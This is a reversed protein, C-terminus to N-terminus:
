FGDAIHYNNLAKGDIDYPQFSPYTSGSTGTSKVYCSFEYRHSNYIKIKEITRQNYFSQKISTNETPTDTSVKNSDSWNLIGLDGFGNTILNIGSKISGDLKYHLILSKYIEKIEKLSLCHDYLRFDNFNLGSLNGTTTTNGDNTSRGCINMNLRGTPMATSVTGTKKLEGNIYLSGINGNYTAAIHYWTNLNFTYNVSFSSSPGNIGLNLSTGNIISFYIQCDTSTKINKCFLINNASGFASTAKIWMAVSWQNGLIEENLSWAVRGTACSGIKGTTNYTFDNVSTNPLDVLGYNKLDGNLPLWVQLSM